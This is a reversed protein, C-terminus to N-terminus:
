VTGKNSIHQDDKQAIEAIPLSPARLSPVKKIVLPRLCKVIGTIEELTQSTYCWLPQLAIWIHAGNKPREAETDM